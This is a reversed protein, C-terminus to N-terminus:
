RLTKLPLRKLTNPTSITNPLINETESDFNDLNQVVNTKRVAPTSLELMKKQNETLIKNLDAMKGSRLCTKIEDLNETQIRPPKSTSVVSNEVQQSM